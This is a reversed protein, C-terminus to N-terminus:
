VRLLELHHPQARGDAFGTNGSGAFVTMNGDPTIKKIVRNENAARYITGNKDIAIACNWYVQPGGYDPVGTNDQVQITTVVGGPTIKRIYPYGGNMDTDAVYLNDDKDITLYYIGSFSAGTGTGDQIALSGNGALVSIDTPSTIKRISYGDVVFLAGQKDISLGYFNGWVPDPTSIDRGAYTTVHAGPTIKRINYNLVDSVFLNDQADITIFAPYYFRAYISDGDAKGSDAGAFTNVIWKKTIVATDTTDTM